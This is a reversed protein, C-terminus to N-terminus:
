YLGLNHKKISACNTCSSGRNHKKYLRPVIIYSLQEKMLSWSNCSTIRGIMSSDPLRLFHGLGQFDGKVLLALVSLLSSKNTSRLSLSATM